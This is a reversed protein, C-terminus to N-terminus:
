GQINQFWRKLFDERSYTIAGIDFKYQMYPHGLNWFAYNNNQLYKALLILQLKGWNNYKKEKSSFGTLSTYTRGIKYGLEGSILENTHKDYIEISFLEFDIIPHKYDKLSLILDIYEGKLWNTQHFTSLKDIINIYNKSIKFLYNDEKILKNVKKSIHLNEFDLIAYEFQMEPLLYLEDDFIHSTSIFGYFALKVYFEESFDRSAYYNSDLNNYIHNHLIETNNLDDSSLYYVTNQKNM